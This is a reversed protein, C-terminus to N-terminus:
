VGLLFILKLWRWLKLLATEKIPIIKGGYLLFSVDKVQFLFLESFFEETEEKKDGM